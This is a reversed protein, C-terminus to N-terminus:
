PIPTVNAYNVITQSYPQSKVLPVGSAPGAPVDVAAGWPTQITMTAGGNTLSIHWPGHPRGVYGAPPLAQAPPGASWVDPGGTLIVSSTGVTIQWSTPAMPPGQWTVYAPVAAPPSAALTKGPPQAAAPPSETSCGAQVIALVISFGAAVLHIQRM